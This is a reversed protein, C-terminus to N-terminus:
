AARVAPRKELVARNRKLWAIAGVRRTRLEIDIVAAPWNRYHNRVCGECAVTPSFEFMASEELEIGCRFCPLTLKNTETM